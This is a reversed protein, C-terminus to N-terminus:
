KEKIGYKYTHYIVSVVEICSILIIFGLIYNSFIDTNWYRLIDGKAYEQKGVQILLENAFNPNWVDTCKLLIFSVAVSVVNCVISCYMVAMCYQGHIIKVIEDFVGIAFILVFYPVLSDWQELNFICNISKIGTDTTVFAGFVQPVFIFMGMLVMCIIISLISEGRSIMAKKTPIAPLQSPAWEKDPKIDVKIKLRELLIFIITLMGLFSITGVIFSSIGERFFVKFFDKWEQVDTFGRVVASVISSIAIGFAGIKVLWMYDDYYDPGIVYNNEDRYRKAFEEPNGLKTLIEEITGEEKMDEILESLELEIEKRQKQPVRKTVEYIYRNIMETEDMDNVLDSDSM